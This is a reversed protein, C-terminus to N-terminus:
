PVVTLTLDNGDGGAYNAQYTNSGVSLIAGDPLNSFTGDISSASTNEIVTLVTGPALAFERQDRLAFGAGNITVGAAAVKDATVRKTDLGCEYSGDSNFTLESQITLTSEKGKRPGVTLLAGPGSGKGVVVAGAINGSGGLRGANVQVPGTGTGSGARNNVLLKGDEITTGGTYTNAGTLTLTAAGTKTLSGGTGGWVGGDEIIGAFCTSRNNTGVTLSAGGLMALGDGEISGVMRDYTGYSIDINGNGFLEMRATSRDAAYYRIRGGYGGDTGSNAIFTANAGTGRGALSGLGFVVEGGGASQGAGGNLVFVGQAATAYDFFDVSGGGAGAVTGGHVTFTANAASSNGIFIVAAGNGFKVGAGNIEFTGRDASARDWIQMFGAVAFFTMYGARARNRLVFASGSVAFTQTIGSNNTIGAGSVYWLNDSSITFASAGPDFTVEGVETGYTSVDVSTENSVGFAAIDNPGNPVTAPLWNDATNWDTTAPDLSWTASGAHVEVVIALSLLALSTFKLPQILFFTLKTKM